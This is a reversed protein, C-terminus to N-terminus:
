PLPLEINYSNEGPNVEFYAKSYNLRNKPTAVGPLDFSVSNRGVLSSVSYAGDAGITAKTASANRRNVHSPAFTISRKTVPKGQYTVVGKITAQEESSSTAPAGCGAVLLIAALGAIPGRRPHKRFSLYDM